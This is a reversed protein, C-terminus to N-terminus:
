VYLSLTPNQQPFERRTEFLNSTNMKRSTVEPDTKPARKNM